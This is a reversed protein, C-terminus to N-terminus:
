GTSAIRLEQGGVDDALDQVEAQGRRQVHLDDAVVDLAIPLEDLRQQVLEDLM